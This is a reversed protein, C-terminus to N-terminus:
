SPAIHTANSCNRLPLMHLMPNPQRVDKRRQNYFDVCVQPQTLWASHTCVDEIRYNNWLGDSDRFTSLGSEASIGAGTFIVIHPM